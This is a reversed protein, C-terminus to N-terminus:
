ARLEDASLSTSAGRRRRSIPSTFLNDVFSCALNVVVGLLAADLM